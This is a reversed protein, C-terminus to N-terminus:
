AFGGATTRERRGPGLRVQMPPSVGDDANKGDAFTWYIRSGGNKSFLKAMTKRGSSSPEAAM